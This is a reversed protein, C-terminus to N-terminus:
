LSQAMSSTLTGTLASTPAPSSSVPHPPQPSAPPTHRARGGDLTRLHDIRPRMTASIILEPPCLQQAAPALAPLLQVGM